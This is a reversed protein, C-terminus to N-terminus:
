NSLFVYLWVFKFRFDEFLDLFGHCKRFYLMSSSTRSPFGGTRCWTFPNRQFNPYNVRYMYGKKMLQNMVMNGGLIAVLIPRIDFSGV